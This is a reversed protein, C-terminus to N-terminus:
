FHGKLFFYCPLTSKGQANAMVECVYTHCDHFLPIYPFVVRHRRQQAILRNAAAASVFITKGIARGRGPVEAPTLHGTFIHWRSVLEVSHSDTVIVQGADVLPFNAAGYGITVADPGTGVQVWRHAVPGGWLATRVQLMVMSVSAVPDGPLGDGSLFCVSPGSTCPNEVDQASAWVPILFLMVITWWTFNRPRLM